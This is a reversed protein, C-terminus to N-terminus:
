QKQRCSKGHIVSLSPFNHFKEHMNLSIKIFLIPCQLPCLLITFPFSLFSFFALRKLQLLCINIGEIAMKFDIVFCTFRLYFPTNKWCLGWVLVRFFRGKVNQIIMPARYKAKDRNREIKRRKRRKKSNRQRKSMKGIEKRKERESGRMGKGM